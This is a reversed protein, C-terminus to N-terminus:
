KGGETTVVAGGNVLVIRLTIGAAALALRFNSSMRRGGQSGRSITPGYTPLKCCFPFWGCGNDVARCPDPEATELRLRPAVTNRSRALPGPEAISVAEPEATFQRRAKRGGPLRSHVQSSAFVLRRSTRSLTALRATRKVYQFRALPEATPPFSALRPSRCSPRFRPRARVAVGSCDGGAAHGLGGGITHQSNDGGRKGGRPLRSRGPLMCDAGRRYGALYPGLRRYPGIPLRVRCSPGLV